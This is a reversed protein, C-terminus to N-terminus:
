GQRCRKAYYCLCDEVAWPQLKQLPEPFEYVDLVDGTKLSRGPFVKKAGEPTGAHLYVRKPLYGDGRCAAIRFAVDYFYLAGLGDTDPRADELLERVLDHIADFDACKYFRAEAEPLIAMAARIADPWFNWNKQQHEYPHGNEKRSEAAKPIAEKLTMNRFRRIEAEGPKPDHDNLAQALTPRRVATLM